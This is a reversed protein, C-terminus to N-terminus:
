LRSDLLHHCKRTVMVYFGPFNRLIYDDLKKMLKLIDETDYKAKNEGRRKPMTEVACNFFIEKAEKIDDAKYFTMCAVIINQDSLVSRASSLYCLVNSIIANTIDPAM